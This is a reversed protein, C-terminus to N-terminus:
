SQNKYKWDKIFPMDEGYKVIHREHKKLMLECWDSLEKGTTKLKSVKNVVDIVLNFRDIKNVVKMDFSTTINGEEIYSHISVNKNDRDYLLDRIVSSYGHFNIIIPTKTEFIENFKEDSLSSPHNKSLVMLDNIAITKIKLSKISTNLIEVAGVVETFSSEGIGVLIVDPKSTTNSLFDVELYGDDVLKKASQKNLWQPRPHKSATIVNILNKTKIVKDFTYILTNTDLPYYANVINYKKNLLSNIFGPDQHTYGNHDQQFAHSTLLFNLSPIKKRFHEEKALKLWKAHQSMMSDVIKIFAEYSHIFGYRGTLIYGELMGECLHESLYSDMVRGDESLFEDNPLKKFNWMRNTVEFIHSFRNSLAEDPGFIRFNKNEKNIIFLDRIYKSLEKTDQAIIEGPNIIQLLYNDIKPQILEKRLLGGNAHPNAGMCREKYPAMEKIEKLLKGNKDFLEEPRYSRLWKELQILSKEDKAVIPIQHARFSNAIIKGDVEKPGTWGKPTTLVIMPYNGVGTKKIKKIDKYVSELTDIMKIHMANEEKGSVFYPKWGLSQFFKAIDKQEMRGFVTPNSIKYGNRHLIPLIVGDTKKNIFKNVHWSTSLPGTEAEGDGIVVAAILDSNDLIAGAAHSLSYGLEGGTNISGPVNSEVHSSVGRPYSFRKFLKKMGEEDETIEKFVRTYTGDLYNQAIMAQGGHGPGSIYIMNLDYKKILRNLHVYVFNQGPATGFHGVPNPKLHKFTLKEKLLPNDMLYLQGLSIYNSARFYADILTIEKKSIYAM